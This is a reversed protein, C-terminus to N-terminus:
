AATEGEGQRSLTILGGLAPDAVALPAAVLPVNYLAAADETPATPLGCCCGDSFLGGIEEEEDQLTIPPPTVCDVIFLRSM